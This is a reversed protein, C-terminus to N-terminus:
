FWAGDLGALAGGDGFAEHRLNWGTATGLPAAAEPLRIGAIENGDADVAPVLPAYPAGAKPPVHDAIGESEWRPGPDLRLPRYLQTPGKVGPMSPFQQRFVELEVLTGDAIKPHLSAPPEGEERAWRNLAELLARLVPGRHKIPNLPYLSSGKAEIDDSGDLHQSNAILYVRVAPDLELDEKGTVDTHLLSAARSW